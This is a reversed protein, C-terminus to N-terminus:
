RRPQRGHRASITYTTFGLLGALAILNGVWRDGAVSGGVIIGLGIFAAALLIWARPGPREGLLMWANLTNIFPLAGFLLVTNAVTTHFLAWVYCTSGFALGCGGAVGRWGIAHFASVTYRGHRVAVFALVVVFVGLSRYAIVQWGSASEILRTLLGVFSFCFGASLVMLVYPLPSTGTPSVASRPSENM